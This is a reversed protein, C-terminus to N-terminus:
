GADPEEQKKRNKQARRIATIEKYADSFVDTPWTDTEGSEDINIPIIKEKEDTGKVWYFVVNEPNLKGEAIRRRLRLLFLESHTEILFRTNVKHCAAVYLDALDGHAQPHLHLEPQEVVELGGTAGHVEDFMRQVVMLLVQAIGTGVDRLNVKLMPNKPNYLVLSFGVGEKAVDIKWGGLHEHFWQGLDELIKREKRSAESALIQPAQSGGPGVDTHRGGSYRYTRQPKERFPGLYNVRLRQRLLNQIDIEDLLINPLLGVFEIRMERDLSEVFYRDPETNPDDGTWQATFVSSGNKLLEFHQVILIQYEEYGQIRVAVSWQQGDEDEFSFGIRLNSRPSQNYVLEKFVAGFDLGDFELDLPAVSKGSFGRELLLPLRAIVSKGSSNPGILITLPKIDLHYEAEFAKYKEFLLHTLKM